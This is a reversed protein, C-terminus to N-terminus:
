RVPRTASAAVTENDVIALQLGTVLLTRLAVGDGSRLVGRIAEASAAIALHEVSTRGRVLQRAKALQKTVAGSCPNCNGHVHM